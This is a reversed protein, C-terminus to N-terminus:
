RLPGADIFARVEAEPADPRVFEHWWDVGAEDLAAVAAREAAEDARRSRGGVWIQWGPRAQARLARVDDPTVDEWDPPEARYLCAGDWRLARERPGRASLRGGVVIPIRPRQVPRPLLRVGDLRFRPGDHTVPEGRWLADVVELAEDLLAARLRADDAEGLRTFDVSSPDGSGVGLVMRGGSLHDLTAAAEAVMWPRRRPLPTVLTGIRVRETALAVAALAVWPDYTEPSIPHVVYDELFVGDWGAAEARAAMAALSRPDGWPGAPSIDLGYQV